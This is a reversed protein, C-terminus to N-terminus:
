CHLHKNIKRHKASCHQFTVGFSLYSVWETQKKYKENINNNEESNHM